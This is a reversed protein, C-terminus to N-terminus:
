ILHCLGIENDYRLNTILYRIDKYLPFREPFRHIWLDTYADSIRSHAM